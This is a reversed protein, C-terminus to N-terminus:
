DLQFLKNEYGIRNIELRYNQFIKQLKSGNHEEEEQVLVPIEFSSDCHFSM